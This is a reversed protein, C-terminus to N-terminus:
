VRIEIMKRIVFIGLVMMVIAFTVMIKGVPDVFLTGIYDRNILSLVFAAIFPLAILIAASLRGEASLTKIHGQLKFRERILYAINELIEALNGGTERQIIVSIVFFKLDPCDVRNSFNKLADNVGVGFNIENLTTDFETGIPDDFEDGVMKLGGSFAHGARLSRGILDLAEPLQRQFKQMRRRKKTYIYFFPMMALFAAVPISLLYNSTIWTVGLFGVAALLLSLLIFFGLPRQTGAQELLRNMRDAWRFRLLLRNLWPVESLARKRMIDIAEEGYGEPSLAQLRRRVRKVEPRRIGRFAFYGGEILLVISVFIGIAILIDM